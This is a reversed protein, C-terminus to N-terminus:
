IASLSYHLVKGVLLKFYISLKSQRAESVKLPQTPRASQRGTLIQWLSQLLLSYWGYRGLPTIFDAKLAELLWFITQEPDRDHHSQRALYLYFSSCSLRHLLLPIDPRNQRTAQLMLRHSRAMKQYDRSMSSAIKRYGVTFEPVVCFRYKEAIRLYLDWDECGQANQVKLDSNYGGVRELCSRRILTASANGLFNHCILTKYVDGEITSAHFPGLPSDNENIDVSWSYVLGVSSDSQSLRKVQKELHQPYWIDDADLPAIFEGRANAIGFNRAAAVGSNSQQLIVIRGDRQSLETAIEVTRDSSGDDVIIIEFDRDSQALVSNVTRELWVEANYAPIIVSVRPLPLCSLATM